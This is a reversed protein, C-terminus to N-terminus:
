YKGKEGLEKGWVTEELSVVINFAMVNMEM